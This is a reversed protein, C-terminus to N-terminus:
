SQVGEKQAVSKSGHWGGETDKDEEQAQEEDLGARVAIGCGGGGGSEEPRVPGGDFGGDGGLALGAVGVVVGLPKVDDVGGGLAHVDDVAVSALHFFGEAAAGALAAEAGSVGLSRGSKEGHTADANGLVAVGGDLGAVGFFSHAADVGLHEIRGSVGVGGETAVDGVSDDDVRVVGGGAVHEALATRLAENAADGAGSATGDGVDLVGGLSM